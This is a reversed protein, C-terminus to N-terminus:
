WSGEKCVPRKGEHRYQSAHKWVDAVLKEAGSGLKPLYRIHVVSDRSLAVRRKKEGSGVKRDANKIQITLRIDMDGDKPDIVLTTTPDIVCHLHSQAYHRCGRRTSKSKNLAAKYARKLAERNHYLKGDICDPPLGTGVEDPVHYASMVKLTPMQSNWSLRDIPEKPIPRLQFNSEGRCIQFKWFPQDDWLRYIYGGLAFRNNCDGNRKLRLWSTDMPILAKEVGICARRRERHCYYTAGDPVVTVFARFQCDFKDDTQDKRMALFRVPTDVTETGTIEKPPNITRGLVADMAIIELYDRKHTVKGDVRDGALVDCRKCIVNNVGYLQQLAWLITVVRTKLIKASDDLGRNDCGTPCESLVQFLTFLSEFDKVDQKPLCKSFTQAMQPKSPIGFRNTRRQNKKYTQNRRKRKGERKNKNDDDEVDEVDVSNLNESDGDSVNDDEPILSNVHGLVGGKMKLLARNNGRDHAMAALLRRATESPFTRQRASSSAKRMGAKRVSGGTNLNLELRREENPESM